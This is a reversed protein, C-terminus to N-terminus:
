KMVEFHGDRVAVESNACPAAVICTRSFLQSAAPKRLPWCIDGVQAVMLFATATVLSGHALPIMLSGVGTVLLSGILTAGIGFRRTLRPAIMRSNVVCGFVM